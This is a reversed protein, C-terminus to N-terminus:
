NILKIFFDFVRKGLSSSGLLPSFPIEIAVAGVLLVIFSIFFADIWSSEQRYVPFFTYNQTEPIKLSNAYDRILGYECIKRAKQDNYKDLVHNFSYIFNPGIEFKAKNKQCIIYSTINDLYAFPKYILFVGVVFSFLVQYLLLYLIFFIKTTIM